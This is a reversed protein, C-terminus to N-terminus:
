KIVSLGGFTAVYINTGSAYVGECYNSGLGNATTKNTWSTGGDTSISLGYDTAVYINGNTNVYVDRILYYLDTNKHTNGWTYNTITSTSISTSTTTPAVTTTSTATEIPCGVFGIISISMVILFAILRNIEKLM